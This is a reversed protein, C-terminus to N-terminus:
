EQHPPTDLLQADPQPMVMPPPLLSPGQPTKPPEGEPRLTQDVLEWTFDNLRYRFSGENNLINMRDFVGSGNLDHYSRRREVKERHISFSSGEYVGEVSYTVLATFRPYRLDKEALSALFLSKAQERSELSLLVMPSSQERVSFKNNDNNAFVVFPGVRVLPREYRLFKLMQKAEPSEPHLGAEDLRTSAIKKYYDELKEKTDYLYVYQHFDDIQDIQDDINQHRVSYSLESLIFGLFFIFLCFPIKLSNSYYKIPKTDTRETMM